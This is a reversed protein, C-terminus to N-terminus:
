KYLNLPCCAICKGYAAAKGLTSWVGGNKKGDFIALMIDCEQAMFDDRLNDAGKKYEKGAYWFEDAHEEVFKAWPDSNNYNECPEACLISINYGEDKLQSAVYGFAMDSGSAMGTIIVATQTPRVYSLIEKRMWERIGTWELASVDKPLGLRQERHGTLAVKM